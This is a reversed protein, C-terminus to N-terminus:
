NTKIAPLASTSMKEPRNKDTQEQLYTTRLLLGVFFTFTDLADQVGTHKAYNKTQTGANLAWAVNGKPPMLALTQRIM